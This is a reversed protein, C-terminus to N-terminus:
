NTGVTIICPKYNAYLQCFLRVLQIARDSEVAVVLVYHAGEYWSWGAYTAFSKRAKVVRSTSELVKLKSIIRQQVINLTIMFEPFTSSLEYM